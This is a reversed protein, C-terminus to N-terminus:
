KKFKLSTLFVRIEKDLDQLANLKIYAKERLDYDESKSTYFEKLYKERLSTKLQDYVDSEVFRQLQELNTM